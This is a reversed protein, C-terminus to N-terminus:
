QPIKEFYSVIFYCVLYLLVTGYQLWLFSFPSFPPGFRKSLLIKLPIPLTKIQAINLELDWHVCALMNDLPCLDLCTLPYSLLMGRKRGTNIAYIDGNISFFHIVYQEALAVKECWWRLRLWYTEPNERQKQRWRRTKGEEDERKKGRVGRRTMAMKLAKGRVSWKWEGEGDSTWTCKAVRDEHGNIILAWWRVESGMNTVLFCSIM